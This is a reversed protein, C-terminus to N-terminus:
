IYLSRFNNKWCSTSINERNRIANITAVKELRYKMQSTTMTPTFAFQTVTRPVCNMQARFHPIYTSHACLRIFANKFDIGKVKQIHLEDTVKIMKHMQDSLDVGLTVNLEEIYRVDAEDIAVMTGSYRPLGNLITTSEVITKKKM